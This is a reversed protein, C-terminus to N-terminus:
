RGPREFDWTHGCEPCTVPIQQESTAEFAVDEMLKPSALGLYQAVEEGLRATNWDEDVSMKLFRYFDRPASLKTCVRVHTYSLAGASVARLIEEKQDAPLGSLKLYSSRQESVTSKPYGVRRAYEVLKEGEEDIACAAYWGKVFWAGQEVRDAERYGDVAIDFDLVTLDPLHPSESDTTEAIADEVRTDVQETTM